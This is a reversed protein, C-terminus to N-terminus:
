KMKPFFLEDVPRVTAVRTGITTGYIVASGGMDFLQRGRFDNM